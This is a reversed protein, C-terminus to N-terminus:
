RRGRWTLAALTDLFAPHTSYRQGAHPYSLNTGVEVKGLGSCTVVRPDDSVPDGHDQDPSSNTNQGSARLDRGEDQLYRPSAPSAWQCPRMAPCVDNIPWRSRLVGSLDDGSRNPVSQSRPPTPDVSPMRHAADGSRVPDEQEDLGGSALWRGCMTPRPHDELNHEDPHGTGQDVYGWCSPDPRSQHSDRGPGSTDVSWHLYDWLRVSGHHGPCGIAVAFTKYGIGGQIQGTFQVGDFDEM